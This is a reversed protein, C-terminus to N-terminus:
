DEKSTRAAQIWALVQRVNETIAQFDGGALWERRILQSGMGLCAAGAHIWETISERTAKVGWAPMLRSWPMPGRVARLFDPGGVEQAPFVKIVEVGLAEATSIESATGCGPIYPVKRRNCVGATEADLVPSVIFNAGSAMYLAATPADMVTGVGLILDPYQAAVFRALETFTHWAGEGRNTLEIVGVGGAACAAVIRQATELDPTSFIPLLGTDLLTNLVQMRDFRAM